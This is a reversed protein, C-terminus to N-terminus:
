FGALHQNATIQESPSAAGHCLKPWVTRPFPFLANLKIARMESRTLVAINATLWDESEFDNSDQVLLLASLEFRVTEINDNSLAGNEVATYYMM